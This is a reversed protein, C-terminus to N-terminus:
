EGWSCSTWTARSFGTPWPRSATRANLLVIPADPALSRGIDTVPAIGSATVDLRPVRLLVPTGPSFGDQRNWEAPDIHVGGATAPMSSLEFHVRRGTASAADPVTYRDNPFPLLCATPDLPDCAVYVSHQPPVPPPGAAAPGALTLGLVAAISLAVRAGRAPTM